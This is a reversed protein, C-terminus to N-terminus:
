ATKKMIESTYDLYAKVASRVMVSNSLKIGLKLSSVHAYLSTLRKLRRRYESDKVVVAPLNRALRMSFRNDSLPEAECFGSENILDIIDNM